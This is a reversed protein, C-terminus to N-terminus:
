SARGDAIARKASARRRMADSRVAKVHARTTTYGSWVAMREMEIKEGLRWDGSVESGWWETVEYWEVLADHEEGFRLHAALDRADSPSLGFASAAKESRLAQYEIFGLTGDEALKFANADFGALLADCQAIEATCDVIEAERQQVSVHYGFGRRGINM